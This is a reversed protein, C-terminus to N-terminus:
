GWEVSVKAKRYDRGGPSVDSVVYNRTYDLGDLTLVDDPRTPPNYGANLRREPDTTSNNWWDQRVQESLREFQQRALYHAVNFQPNVWRNASIFAALLAAMVTSILLAAIVVELLTFGAQRKGRFRKV